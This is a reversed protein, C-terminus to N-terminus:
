YKKQRNKLYKMTNRIARRQFKYWKRTRRKKGGQMSMYKEHEQQDKDAEKMTKIMKDMTLKKQPLTYSSDKTPPSIYTTVPTSEIMKVPPSIIENIKREMVKLDKYLEVYEYTDIKEKLTSVDNYVMHQPNSFGSYHNHIFTTLTKRKDDQNLTKLVESLSTYTNIKWIGYTWRFLYHYYQFLGKKESLLLTIFQSIDNMLSEPIEKPNHNIRQRLETYTDIHKPYQKNMIKNIRPDNLHSLVELLNNYQNILSDYVLKIFLKYDLMRKFEKPVNIMRSPYIIIQNHYVKPIPTSNESNIPSSKIPTSNESNIPSSKIPTSNESKIPINSNPVNLLKPKVFIANPNREKVVVSKYVISEKPKDEKPEEDILGEFVSNYNSKLKELPKEDDDKIDGTLENLRDKNGQNSKTPNVPSRRDSLTPLEFGEDPDDKKIVTGQSSNFSEEPKRPATIPKRATIPNMAMGEETDEEEEEDSSNDNVKSPGFSTMEVDSENAGGLLKYENTSDISDILEKYSKMHEDLKSKIDQIQKILENTFKIDKDIESFKDLQTEENTYEKQPLSLTNLKTMDQEVKCDCNKRNVYDSQIINLKNGFEEFTLPIPNISAYIKPNNLGSM